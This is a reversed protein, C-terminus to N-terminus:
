YRLGERAGPPGNCRCQLSLIDIPTDLRRVKAAADVVSDFDSLELAIPTTDGEVSRCATKAKRSTRAMGIVHAGRLALVRMTEKGIGSNVGTIVATKGALDVERTVIEATSGADFGSASTAAGNRGPRLATMAVATGLFKRRSTNMM